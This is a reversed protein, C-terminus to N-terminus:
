SRGTTGPQVLWGYPRYHAPGVDLADLHCVQKLWGMLVWFCFPEHLRYDKSIAASTATRTAPSVFEIM